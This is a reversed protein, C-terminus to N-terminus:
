SESSGPNVERLRAKTEPTHLKAVAKNACHEQERRRKRGQTLRPLGRPPEDGNEVSLVQAAPFAQRPGPVDLVARDRRLAGRFLGAGAGVVQHPAAAQRAIELQAQVKAELARAAVGADLEAATFQGIPIGRAVLGVDFIAFLPGAAEELM